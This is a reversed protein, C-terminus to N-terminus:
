SSNKQGWVINNTLRNLRDQTLRNVRYRERDLHSFSSELVIKVLDYEIAKLATTVLRKARNDLYIANEALNQDL